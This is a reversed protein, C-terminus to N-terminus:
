RQNQMEWLLLHKLFAHHAAFKAICFGPFGDLFGLSLFYSSVFAIPGVFMVKAASTRAGRDFMQRAALPAYRSIIMEHHQAADDVSYHSINGNLKQLRAGDDMTVSEHIISESWRGRRRDFLRLQWDPYWGSHRIERGMYVSLRPIRYGSAGSADGNLRLAEIETRLEPSVQEDADLSFIWDYSAENVGFQKQASFGPWPRVIIRAGLESSIDATRDASESDIVLVEDAWAVSRIARAIKAEENGAIIVASIQM